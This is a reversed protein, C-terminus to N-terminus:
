CTASGPGCHRDRPTPPTQEWRVSSRGTCGRWSPTPPRSTSSSVSTGTTSPATPGCTIRCSPHTYSVPYLVHELANATLSRDWGRTQAYAGVIQELSRWTLPGTDPNQPTDTRLRELAGFGRLLNHYEAVRGPATDIDVGHTERLARVWRLARATRDVAHAPLGALDAVTALTGTGPEPRFERYRFVPRDPDDFKILRPPWDGEAASWGQTAEATFVTRDSMNAAWQAPPPSDLRDKGTRVQGLECWLAWVPKDPRMRQLSKRRALLRGFEKDGLLHGRGTSRVPVTKMGTRGHGAFIYSDTLPRPLPRLGSERDTDVGPLGEYLDTYYRVASIQRLGQERMATDMANLFVRGTLEQGDVTTLAYSELDTDLVRRGDALTVSAGPDDPVLGPDAPLWTGLPVKGPDTNELAVYRSGDGDPVPQLRFTGDTYWVRGAIRDALLRAPSEGAAEVLLVVPVGAPRHPDHAVLEIFEQEDVEVPNGGGDHVVILDSPGRQAVVAHVPGGWPATAQVITGREDQAGTRDLLLRLGQRGTLNRVHSRGDPGAPETPAALAGSRELQYAAVAALSRARHRRAASGAVSLAQFVHDPTVPASATLHLVQRTMGPLDIPGAGFRRDGRRAADLVALSNVTQPFAPNDVAEPGFVQTLAASLENWRASATGGPDPPPAPTAAGGGATRVAEAPRAPPASVPAPGHPQPVHVGEARDWLARFGEYVENQERTAVVPNVPAQDPAEGYLRRMLPFLAPYHRRVWDPGGNQRRHGTYADTGHNARFYVNTLQAFFELEDRSSYNAGTRRGEGDTGHLWGDPWLAGYEDGTEQFVDHVLRQQEEDLGYQHITHAFEHLTTSYGDPYAPSAGPVTTTEGLLNEETVGATRRGVGRVRDWPRGDRLTRGALDRFPDLSTMAESRPVVVVRAGDGLLKATVDPDRLMRAIQRRVEQRASVPQDVGSPVHVMLQAATEAFDAATLTTRLADVLAPDSALREREGPPLEALAQDRDEKSLDALRSALRRVPDLAVADSARVTDALTVREDNLWRVDAQVAGLGLWTRELESRAAPNRAAGDLLEGLRVTLDPAAGPPRGARYADGRLAELAAVPLADDAPAYSLGWLLDFLDRASQQADTALALTYATDALARTADPVLFGGTVTTHAADTSVHPDTGVVIEAGHVVGSLTRGDEGVRLANRQAGAFRRAIAENIADAHRAVDAPLAFELRGLPRPNEFLVRGRAGGALVVPHGLDRMLASFRRGVDLKADDTAPAVPSTGPSGAASPTASARDAFTHVAGQEASTGPLVAPRRAQWHATRRAPDGALVIVNEDRSPDLVPASPLESLLTTRATGARAALHQALGVPNDHTGIVLLPAGLATQRHVRDHRVLAAIESGPVWRESGDPWAMSVHGNTSDAYLVYAGVASGAPADPWAAGYQTGGAVSGDPSM